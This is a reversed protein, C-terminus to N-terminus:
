MNLLIHEYDHIDALKVYVDFLDNRVTEVLREVKVMPHALEKEVIARALLDCFKGVYKREERKM